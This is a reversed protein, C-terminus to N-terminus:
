MVRGVSNSPPLGDNPDAHLDRVPPELEAPSEVPLVAAPGSLLPTLTDDKAIASAVLREYAAPGHLAIIEAKAPELLQGLLQAMYALAVANRAPLRNASTIQALRSVFRSLGVATKLEEPTFYLEMAVLEEDYSRHRACFGLEDVSILRCRRGAATNYRCRKLGTSPNIEDDSPFAAAYHDYAM